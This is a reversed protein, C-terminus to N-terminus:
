LFNLVVSTYSMGAWIPFLFILIFDYEIVTNMLDLSKKTMKMLLQEFGWDDM